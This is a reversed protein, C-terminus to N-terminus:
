VNARIAEFLGLWTHETAVASVSLGAAVAASETVPSIAAFHVRSLGPHDKLLRAINQAITPSSIAIWDLEGANLLQLAEAPLTDVDVHRYVIVEDFRAGAARLTEPLVDRGRSARPWLVQKGAVHPALAAALEEGRYTEPVIDARLRWEALRQASAPGIAALKVQSLRRADGGREWLRGLFADVGNVSTFVLWDYGDLRQLAADVTGWDDAPQIDITPMLVPRAGLSLALEVANDAEGSPRTIGITMGFLPLHEYWAIAERQTVCDGVVILSPAHLRAAKAAAAIQDLPATATRQQPLTGRSIVAVPTGAPKGHKLLAAAINELRHLGM